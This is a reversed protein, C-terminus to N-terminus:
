VNFPAHSAVGMLKAVGEDGGGKIVGFITTKLCIKM